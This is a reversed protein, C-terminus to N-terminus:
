RLQIAGFTTALFLSYIFLLIAGERWGMRRTTLFYWLFLNAVLSFIVLDSFVLMDVKLPSFILTVGLILTINVFCSGVIDGLALASEGKMIARTDLTFEPLSTGFAIITAGILSKPIGIFEAISSASDVIFYSSVIVGVVGVFAMVVYRRLKQREDYSVDWGTGEVPTKMRALYLMYAGFTALLVLGITQSAYALYILSLPIISAIFLGFYLNELGGEAMSSVVNTNKSHKITALLTALGLILCVNVINSGLVNGISVGVTGILVSIVAVSLEPLSTSFAILTFGITSKRVGTIESVKVANTIATHSAKDLGVLFALLILVNVMLPANVNNWWPAGLLM